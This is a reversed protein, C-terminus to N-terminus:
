KKSINVTMEPTKMRRMTMLGPFIPRPVQDFAASADADISTDYHVIRLSNETDALPRRFVRHIIKGEDKGTDKFPIQAIVRVPVWEDPNEFDDTMRRIAYRSFM